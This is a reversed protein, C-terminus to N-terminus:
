GNRRGGLTRLAKRTVSLAFWLYLRWVAGGALSIVHRHAALDAQMAKWSSPMPAIYTPCRVQMSMWLKVGAKRWLISHILDESYAKGPFPYYSELVADERRCLVCGGPLWQVPHLPLVCKKPDVGYGIGAPSLVGMRAAGWPAGCILTTAVNDVFASFGERLRTLSEGTAANLLLPAVANRPGLETLQSTLRELGDCPMMVDDDLQMLLACRALKLGHARQAVQGRVPSRILRANAPLSESFREAEAEPMCILIEEPAVSGENLRMLTMQLHEGGLTAIVVSVSRDEIM